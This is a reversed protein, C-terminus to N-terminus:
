ENMMGLVCTITHYINFLHKDTSSFHVHYLQTCVPFLFKLHDSLILFCHLIHNDSGIVNELHVSPFSHFSFRGYEYNLM